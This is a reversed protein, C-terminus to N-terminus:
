EDKDRQENIKNINLNIVSLIKNHLPPTLSSFWTIPKGDTGIIFKYFNWRPGAFWGLQDRLWTFFPHSNNGVVELKETVLFSTGFKAQCLNSIDRNNGLEQNGFNNSPVAIVILDRNRYIEWIRQMDTYQKTFSCLSATNVIFILKDTFDKLKIKSMGDISNFEFDYATQM